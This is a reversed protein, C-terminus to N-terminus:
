FETEDKTTKLKLLFQPDLKQYDARSAISVDFRWELDKYHVQGKLGPNKEMNERITNFHPHEFIGNFLIEERDKFFLKLFTRFDKETLKQQIVKLTM